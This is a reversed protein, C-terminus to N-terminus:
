FPVEDYEDQKNITQENNTQLSIRKKNGDAEEQFMGKKVGARIYSYAQGINKVYGETIIYDGIEKSYMWEKCELLQAIRKLITPEKGCMNVIETADQLEPIGDNIKFVFEGFKMGRCEKAKVRSIGAKDDLLEVQMITECKNTLEAGLHGRVKESGRNEHVITCIHTNYLGCWRSVNEAFAGCEVQENFDKVLDKAGDLLVFDPKYHKIADEVFVSRDTLTATKLALTIYQPNSQETSWMQMKYIRSISKRFYYRSQETDIHLIIFPKADNSHENFLLNMLYTALFTKRSKAQGTIISLSGVTFVPTPHGESDPLSLLPTPEVYEASIDEIFDAFTKTTVEQTNSCEAM